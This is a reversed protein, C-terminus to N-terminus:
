SKSNKLLNVTISEPRDEEGGDVWTKTGSISTSEINTVEVSTAGNVTGTATIGKGSEGATGNAIAVYGEAGAETLEYTSGYMLGPITVSEGDKLQFAASFTVTYPEVAGQHALLQNIVEQVAANKVEDTFIDSSLFTNILNTVSTINLLDVVSLTLNFDFAKNPDGGV